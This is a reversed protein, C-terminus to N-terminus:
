WFSPRSRWDGRCGVVEVQSVEMAVCWLGAWPKSPTLDHLLLVEAATCLERCSLGKLQRMVADQWSQLWLASPHSLQCVAQLLEVLQRTNFCHLHSQVCKVLDRILAQLAVPLCAPAAFQGASCPLLTLVAHQCRCSSGLEV